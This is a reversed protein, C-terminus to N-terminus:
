RGVILRPGFLATTGAVLLAALALVSASALAVDAAEIPEGRILRMMLIDHGLTPILMMTTTPQQPFLMLLAGPISPAIMVFSIAAQATKFTKCLTGVFIQLSAGLAVVPLLLAVIAFALLPSLQIDLGIDSFPIAVVAVVFGLAAVVVGLLGFVFAVLLKGVVLDRARVPNLLLAELSGREREGATVDIAVYTGGMFCALLLFLPMVGLLLATKGQATGVDRASVSVAQMLSPDIGRAVLRLAGIQSGYQSLTARVRGLIVGSSQRSEDVILEVVAPRGARLDEGFTAPIVMVIDVKGNKVAAIPDAPAEEVVVGSRVLQAVLVPAHERGVVPVKPATQKEQIDSFAFFLLILSFPGMLPMMLATSLARRDRANDRAEKVFVTGAVSM